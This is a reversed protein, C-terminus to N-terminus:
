TQHPKLVKGEQTLAVVAPVQRVEMGSTAVTQYSTVVGTPANYYVERGANDYGVGIGQPPRLVGDGYPAVKQAPAGYVPSEKYVDPVVRPMYYGQGAAPPPRYMPTQILFLQQDSSAATTGPFGATPTTIQRESWYGGQMTVPAVSPPPAVKEQPKQPYYDTFIRSIAEEGRRQHFIAAQEQSAMQLIQRQMEAVPAEGGIQREEKLPEPKLLVVEEMAAEPSPKVPSKVQPTLPPVDAPASNLAELFWQRDSKADAVPSPNVPFLFIRLRAPKPISRLLLRDYELMMHELDEHNTVSILADLDEGPLQYKFCVEDYYEAGGGTVLSSLKSVFSPFPITRDVTLIKTHGGVYSLLNDHPRPIIKGGFSCMFKVRYNTPSSPQPPDDWMVNECDIDRSGPSSDGSDPYTTYAYTEM